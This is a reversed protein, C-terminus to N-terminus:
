ISDSILTPFTVVSRVSIFTSHIGYPICVYMYVYVYVCIYIYVCICMCIYVCICMYICMYMYNKVTYMCVYVDKKYEKGDHDLWPFQIYNGMSYFLVKSNIM